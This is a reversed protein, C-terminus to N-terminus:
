LRVLATEGTQFSQDKAAHFQAESNAQLLTALDVSPM